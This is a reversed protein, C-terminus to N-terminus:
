ASAVNKKRNKVEKLILKDIILLYHTGKKLELILGQSELSNIEENAQAILFKCMM